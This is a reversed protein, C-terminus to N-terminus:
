KVFLVIILVVGVAGIVCTGILLGTVFDKKNM